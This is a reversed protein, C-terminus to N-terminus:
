FFSNLFLFTGKAVDAPDLKEELRHSSTHTQLLKAQGKSSGDPFDSRSFLAVSLLKVSAMEDVPHFVEIAARIVENLNKIAWM